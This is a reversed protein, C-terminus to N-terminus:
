HLVFDQWLDAGDKLAEGQMIGYVFAEGIFECGGKELEMLILPVDSGKVISVCDNRQIISRTHGVYGEQTLFIRANWDIADIFKAVSPESPPNKGLIPTHIRFFTHNIPHLTTSLPKCDSCLDFDACYM